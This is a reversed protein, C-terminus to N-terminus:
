AIALYVHNAGNTNALGTDHVEFGTSTLSVGSYADTTNKSPYVVEDGRTSDVIIWDEGAADCKIMVFRPAFGTNVSVTTPRNGTYNGVKQYGPVSHFCFAVYTRSSGNFDATTGSTSLTSSQPQFLTYSTSLSANSNNLGEFITTNGGDPRYFVFWNQSADRRKFIVLNPQSSLGHGISSAGGGNGTYTVISVGAATNASVNSTITGDTNSSPTGGVKWAFAVYNSSGVNLNNTNVDFGDSNFTFYSGAQEQNVLNHYLINGGNNRTVDVLAWNEGTLSRNRVWLMDPQFNMGTVVKGGATNAGNGTYLVTQYLMGNALTQEGAGAISLTGSSNFTHVMYGDSRTTKIGGIGSASSTPYAFIAVGSGGSGGANNPPSATDQSGGGGGGTNATGATGASNAGGNGGGDAGSGASGGGAPYGAGGGGGARAVSTGNITSSLGSGGSGGVSSTADGGASGAGGGGGANTGGDGDGGDNGQGVTGSGGTTIVAYTGGGGSGGNSAGYFAGTYGGGKGGGVATITSITAGAISSDSGGQSQTSTVQGAGGSGVTVTFSSGSTVSSISSSLYGGAGGGGGDYAGGGGGGAILLYEIDTSGAAGGGAASATQEGVVQWQTGNYVRIIGDTTDHYISGTLATASGTNPHNPISLSGTVSLSGTLQIDHYRM